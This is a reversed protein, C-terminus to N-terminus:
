AVGRAVAADLAALMGDAMRAVGLQTAATRACSSRIEDRRSAPLALFEACREALADDSVERALFGTECSELYQWEPGHQIARSPEFTIVPTGAFLCDAVSLGLPGPSVCADSACLWRGLAAPDAIGGTFIADHGIRMGLAEAKARLQADDPGSGLIVVAVDVGQRRLAAAVRLLRAFDKEPVLRGLGALLYRASVGLEGRLTARGTREVCKREATIATGDTSNPAIGVVKEAFRSSMQEAMHRDYCIIGDALRLQTWRGWSAAGREGGHLEQRAIGHTWLLRPAAVQKSLLTTWAYDLAAGHELVIVDPQIAGLAAIVDGRWRMRSGPLTTVGIRNDLSQATIMGEPLRGAAVVNVTAGRDALESLFPWRYHPIGGTVIALRLGRRAANPATASQQM